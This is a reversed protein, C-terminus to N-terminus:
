ELVRFRGTERGCSEKGEVRTKGQKSQDMHSKMSVEKAVQEHCNRM